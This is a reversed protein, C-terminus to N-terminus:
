LQQEPRQVEKFDAADFPRDSLLVEAAEQNCLTEATIAWEGLVKQVPAINESTAEMVAASLDDLFSARDEQGLTAIWDGSRFWNTGIEKTM